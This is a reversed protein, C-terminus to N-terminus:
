ATTRTPADWPQWGARVTFTPFQWFTCDKGESAEVVEDPDRSECWVKGDPTVSRYWVSFVELDEKAAQNLGVAAMAQRIGAVKGNRVKQSDKVLQKYAAVMSAAVMRQAPTPTGHRLAWEVDGPDNPNPWTMDDFRLYTAEATVDATTDPATM